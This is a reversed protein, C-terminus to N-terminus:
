NKMIARQSKLIQYILKLLSVNKQIKKELTRTKGRFMLLHTLMRIYKSFCYTNSLNFVMLYLAYENM